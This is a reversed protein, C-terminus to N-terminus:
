NRIGIQNSTGQLSEPANKPIFQSGRSRVFRGAHSYECRLNYVLFQFRVEIEFASEYICSPTRLKPPARAIRSCAAPRPLPLDNQIGLLFGNSELGIASALLVGLVANLEDVSGYAEVRIHDKPVRSGNGLGTEGQDGTKTYITSLYVM